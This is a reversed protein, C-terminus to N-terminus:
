QSLLNDNIFSPLLLTFSTELPNKSLSCYDPIISLYINGSIHKLSQQTLYLGLGTGYESSGKVRYFRNFIKDRELIPIEIGSNSIRIFLNPNTNEIELWHASVEITEGEPTYKVANNFIETLSRECISRDSYLCGLDSSLNLCISINKDKIKQLFPQYSLLLLEKVNISSITVKLKDEELRQLDLLDNIIEIERYCETKLIGLYNEIQQCTSSRDLNYKSKLVEYKTILLQTALTINGLPARLEHSVTSIFEDKLRNHEKLEAITDKLSQNEKLVEQNHLNFFNFNFKLNFCSKFLSSFFLFLKM